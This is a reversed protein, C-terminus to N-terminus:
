RPVAAELSAAFQEDAMQLTQLSTRCATALGHSRDSLAAGARDVAAAAEAVAVATASGGPFHEPIGGDLASGDVEGFVRAATDLVSAATEIGPADAHLGEGAPATM